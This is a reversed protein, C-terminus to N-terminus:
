NWAAEEEDGLRTRIAGRARRIAGLSMGAAQDALRQAQSSVLRVAPNASGSAERQPGKVVNPDDERMRRAIQLGIAIGLAILILSRLRMLADKRGIVIFRVLTGRRGGAREKRDFAAPLSRV